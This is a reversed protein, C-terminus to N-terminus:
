LEQLKEKQLYVFNRCFSLPLYINERYHLMYRVSIQGQAGLADLDIIFRLQNDTLKAM